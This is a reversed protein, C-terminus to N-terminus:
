KARGPVVDLSVAEVAESEACVQDVVVLTAV